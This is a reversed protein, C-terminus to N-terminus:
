PHVLDSPYTSSGRQSVSADDTFASLVGHPLEAATRFPVPEHRVPFNVSRSIFCHEHAKRHVDALLADTVPTGDPLLGAVASSSAPGCSSRM